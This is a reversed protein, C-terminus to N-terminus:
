MMQGMRFVPLLLAAVILLTMGAMILLLVPELLRLLVDISESLRDETADAADILVQALNNSEEGVAIIEILDDPFIQCAKLPGALGDGRKLNEAANGIAESLVRNGTSEKSIRLATLIPVGGDLMTGFIRTFRAIAFGRFVRSFGPVWLKFRDLALQGVDSRSWLYVVAVAVVLGGALLWLHTQIAESASLLAETLAPLEGAERMRQFIPAFNPVFVMMMVTVVVVAVLLLFAPYALAGTVRTTLRQQRRTFEAIRILVTELFGGEEGARVMNIALNGFVRGHGSMAESLSAGNGLFNSLDSLVAKLAPDACQREVVELSRALPVGSRMLDALQGYLTVLRRQSIPRRGLTWSSHGVVPKISITLLQRSALEQLADRKSAAEVFGSVQRAATTRAIYQFRSM